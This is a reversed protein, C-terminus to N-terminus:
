KLGEKMLSAPFGSEKKQQDSSLLRARYDTLLDSEWRAWSPTDSDESKMARHTKRGPKQIEMQNSKEM